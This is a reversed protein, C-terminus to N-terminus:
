AYAVSGMAAEAHVVRPSTYVFLGLLMWTVASYVSSIILITDNRGFLAPLVIFTVPLWLGAILPTFEKFGRQRNSVAVATGTVIMFFNSLPWFIDLTTYLVNTAAPNVIEIITSANALCLLTLQTILIVKGTKTNGTAKLQWLGVLSCIWGTTYALNFIGSLTYPLLGSPVLGNIFFDICLLPSCIIAILGLTRTSM